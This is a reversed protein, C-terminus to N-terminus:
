LLSQLREQFDLTKRQDLAKGFAKRLTEPTIGWLTGFTQWQATIGLRVAAWQAVVGREALSLGVPQWHEDLIGADTLKRMLARAQPTDLADPVHPCNEERKSGATENLYLASAKRIARCETRMRELEKAHVAEKLESEIHMRKIEEAHAADKRESEARMRSIEEDKRKIEADKRENDAHARILEESMDNMQKKHQKREEIVTQVLKECVFRTEDTLLLNGVDGAAPTMAEEEADEQGAPIHEIMERKMIHTQKFDALVQKSM